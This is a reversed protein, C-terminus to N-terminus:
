LLNEMAFSKVLLVMLYGIRGSLKDADMMAFDSQAYTLDLMSEFVRNFTLFVRNSARDATEEIPYCSDLYTGKVKREYEGL